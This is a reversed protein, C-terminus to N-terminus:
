RRHQQKNRNRNPGYNPRGQQNKRRQPPHTRSRPRQQANAGLNTNDEGRREYTREYTRDNTRRNDTDRSAEDRANDRYPTYPAQNRDGNEGQGKGKPVGDRDNQNADAEIALAIEKKAQEEPSFNESALISVFEAEATSRKRAKDQLKAGSIRRYSLAAGVSETIGIHLVASLHALQPGLGGLKSWDSCLDAAFIFRTRYLAFAQISLEQPLLSRKSKESYAVWKTRAPTHDCDM